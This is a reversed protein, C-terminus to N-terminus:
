CPSSEGTAIIAPSQMSALRAAAGDRYGADYAFNCGPSVTMRREAIGYLGDLYGDARARARWTRAAQMREQQTASM